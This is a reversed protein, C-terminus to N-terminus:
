YARVSRGDESLGVCYSSRLNDQPHLDPLARRFDNLLIENQKVITVSPARREWVGLPWVCDFGFKRVTDWDASPVYNLDVITGYNQSLDNLWVCTSKM